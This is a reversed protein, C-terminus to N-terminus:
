EINEDEGLQFYKVYDNWNDLDLRQEKAKKYEEESYPKVPNM